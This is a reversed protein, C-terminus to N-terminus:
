NLSTSTVLPVQCVTLGHLLGDRKEDEKWHQKLDMSVGKIWTRRLYATGDTSLEKQFSISGSIWSAGIRQL